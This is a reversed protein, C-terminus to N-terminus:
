DLKVPLEYQRSGDKASAEFLILMLTSNPQQKQVEVTFDFTGWAPAGADTMEHGTKLEHHGDEVVWSFAAEFVRAKGQVRYTNNGLARVTVEKFRENSSDAPPVKEPPPDQQVLASDETATTNDNNQTCALLALALLFCLLKM